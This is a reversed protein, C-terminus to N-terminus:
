AAALSPEEEAAPLDEAQTPVILVPQEAHAIVQLVDNLPAESGATSCELLALDYDGERLEPLVVEAM